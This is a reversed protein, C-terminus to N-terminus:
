GAHAQLPQTFGCVTSHSFRAVCKTSGTGEAAAKTCMGRGSNTRAQFRPLGAYPCFPSSVHQGEHLLPVKAASLHAARDCAQTFELAIELQAINHVYGARSQTRRARCWSSTQGLQQRPAARSANRSDVHAVVMVVIKYRKPVAGAECIPASSLSERRVNPACM